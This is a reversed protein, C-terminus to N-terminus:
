AARREEARRVNARRVAAVRRREAEEPPLMAGSRHLADRVGWTSCGHREAVERHTLGSLYDAAIAQDDLQITSGCGRSPEVGAIRLLRYITPQQIGIERAIDATKEGSAYLKAVLAANAVTKSAFPKQARRAKLGMRKLCLYVNQRHDGIAQAIEPVSRGQAALTAVEDGRLMAASKRKHCDRYGLSPIGSERLIQRVRERTIDFDAAIQELTDGALYRRAFVIDRDEEPAPPLRGTRKAREVTALLHASPAFWEGEVRIDAFQRHLRREDRFEGAVEALLVMEAKLNIGIQKRRTEPYRSCGIKIPGEGTARRMFYVRGGKM